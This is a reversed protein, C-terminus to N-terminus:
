QEVLDAIAERVRASGHVRAARTIAIGFAVDIAAAGRRLMRNGRELDLVAVPDSGRSPWSPPTFAELEGLLRTQEGLVEARIAKTTGPMPPSMM